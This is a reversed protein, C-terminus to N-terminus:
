FIGSKFKFTYDLRNTLEMLKKLTELIEERKLPKILFNMPRIQFLDMAYNAIASIYVIQVLENHLQNRIKRGVQLGNLSKFEIDLFIIDFYLGKEMHEFM